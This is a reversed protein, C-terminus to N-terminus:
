KFVDVLLMNFVSSFMFTPLISVIILLIRLMVKELAKFREITYYISYLMFILAIMSVRKAALNSLLFTSIGSLFLLYINMYYMKANITSIKFRNLILFFVFICSIVMFFLVPSTEGTEGVSKSSALIITLLLSCPLLLWFKLSQKINDRLFVLPLFIGAVNHSFISLIYALYSKIYGHHVYLFAIFLFLTAIFQRYVNLFGMVNPFFIMFLLIFYPKVQSKYCFYVLLFLIISDVVLFTYIENGLLLYLFHSSLWYVPERLYYFNLFTNTDYLMTQMYVEFDLQIAFNRIIYSWFILVFYVLVYLIRSNKDTLSLIMTLIILNIYFLLVM